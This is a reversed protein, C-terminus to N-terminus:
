KAELIGRMIGVKVYDVIDLENMRNPDFGGIVARTLVLFNRVEEYKWYNEPWLCYEQCGDEELKDCEM